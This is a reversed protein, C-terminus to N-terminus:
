NGVSMKLKNPDPIQVTSPDICLRALAPGGFAHGLEHAMGFKIANDPVWGSLMLDSVEVGFAGNGFWLTGNVSTGEHDVKVTESFPTGWLTLPQGGLVNTQILPAIARVFANCASLNMM